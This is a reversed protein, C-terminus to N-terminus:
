VSKEFALAFMQMMALMSAHQALISLNGGEDKVYAILKDHLSYSLLDKVQAAMAIRATDIAEFLGVLVHCPVWQPNIFNIVLAFTDHGFKSMWLDFSATTIVCSDLALMICHGMTKAVLSLIAHQVM